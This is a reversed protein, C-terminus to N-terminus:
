QQGSLTRPRDARRLLAAVARLLLREGVIIQDQRYIKGLPKIVKAMVYTLCLGLFFYLVHTGADSIRNGVQSIAATPHLHFIDSPINALIGPIALIDEVATAFQVLAWFLIIGVLVMKGIHGIIRAYGPPEESGWLKRRLVALRLTHALGRSDQRMVESLEERTATREMIDEITSSTSIRRQRGLDHAIGLATEFTRLGEETLTLSYTGDSRPEAVFFLPSNLDARPSPKHVVRGTVGLHPSGAADTTRPTLAGSVQIRVLRGLPQDETSRSTDESFTVDATM